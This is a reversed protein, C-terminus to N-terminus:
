TPRTVKVIGTEGNEAAMHLVTEGDLGDKVDVDAKYNM